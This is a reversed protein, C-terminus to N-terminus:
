RDARGRGQEAPRAVHGCWAATTTAGGVSDWATSPGGREKENESDVRRGGGSGGGRGRGAEV